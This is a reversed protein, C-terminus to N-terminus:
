RGLEIVLAGEARVDYGVMGLAECEEEWKKGHYYASSGDWALQQPEIRDKLDSLTFTPNDHLLVLDFVPAAISLQPLEHLMALSFDQFQLYGAQFYWEASSSSDQWHVTELEKIGRYSLYNDTAWARDEEAKSSDIIRLCRRGSICDIVTQDKVQYIVVERHNFQRWSQWSAQACVLVVMALVAFVMRKSPALLSVALLFILLFHMGMGAIGLWIDSLTSYPLDELFLIVANMAKIILFLLKGLLASLFPVGALVFLSMGVSLIAMAAPVVILGSLLFYVPFQHFYFLSIPLTTLQAALAVSSLEWVYDLWKPRFYLARYLYPQFFVIGLLALYSLQFGINLLLMPNFLLMCFASATITNYINTYRKLTQGIIIFSFMWGARVVSATAGTFYVFGWIGALLLGVRLWKRAGYGKGLFRLLFQLGLYILGVHLGSVALVHMAGTNAYSNRIAPSLAQRHGTILAAGIGYTEPTPLHQQLVALCYTKLRETTSALSIAQNDPIHRWYGAKVFSQIYYGQNRMYAAFDFAKPNKPGPISQVRGQFEIRDGVRYVNTSDPLYLLIRGHTLYDEGNMSDVFALQLGIRTFRNGTEAQLIKGSARMEHGEYPKLGKPYFQTQQKQYLIFGLCFLFLYLAGGFWWQQHPLPKRRHLFVLLALIFPLIWLSLQFSTSSAVGIGLGLSPFLRVFPAARWNLTM